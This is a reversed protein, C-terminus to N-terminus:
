SEWTIYELDGEDNIKVVLLQNCPEGDIYITYDFVCSCDEEDPYVGVRTLQLQNLLQTANPISKDKVDIIGALEEEDCEELYFNIYDATEGEDDFDKKILVKNQEYYTDINKLFYEIAAFKDQGITINNFNIDIRLKMSNVEAVIRCHTELAAPNIEGFYPLTINVM